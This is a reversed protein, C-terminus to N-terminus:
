PSQLFSFSFWPLLSGKGDHFVGVLSHILWFARVLNLVTSRFQGAELVCALSVEDKKVNSVGDYETIVASFM